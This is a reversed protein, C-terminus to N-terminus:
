HGHNKRQLSKNSHKLNSVANGRRNKGNQIGYKKNALSMRQNETWDKKRIAIWKVFLGGDKSPKEIRLDDTIGLEELIDDLFSINSCNYYYWALRQTQIEGMDFMTQVTLDAYEGFKIQSKRSLKRLVTTAM